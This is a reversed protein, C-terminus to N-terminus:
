KKWCLGIEAKATMPIDPAYYNFAKIMDQELARAVTEAIDKHAIIEIEDHVVLVLEADWDNEEIRRKILCLALKTVSAGAGQFPQNKAVNLLHSVKGPHDWDVGGFLRIRGDLPSIAQKDRKALAEFMDLCEKIKPFTKFYKDMLEVAEPKTINLQTALKSPGM